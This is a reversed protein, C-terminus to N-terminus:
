TEGGAVYASVDSGGAGSLAIRQDASIGGMAPYRHVAWRVAPDIEIGGIVAYDALIVYREGPAAIKGVYRREAAHDDAAALVLHIDIHSYAPQASPSATM